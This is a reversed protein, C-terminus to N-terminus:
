VDVRFPFRASRQPGTRSSATSPRVKATDTTRTGGAKLVDTRSSWKEGRSLLYDLILRQIAGLYRGGEDPQQEYSPPVALTIVSGSREPWAPELTLLVM